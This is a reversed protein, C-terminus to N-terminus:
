SIEHRKILLHNVNISLDIKCLSSLKYLLLCRNSAIALACAVIIKLLFDVSM